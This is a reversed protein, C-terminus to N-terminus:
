VDVVDAGSSASAVFAVPAGRAGEVAKELGDILDQM